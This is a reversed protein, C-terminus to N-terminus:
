RPLARVVEISEFPQMPITQYKVELIDLEEVGGPAHLTVADGQRAKTLARAM